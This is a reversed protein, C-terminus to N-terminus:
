RRFQRRKQFALRRNAAESEFAVTSLSWDIGKKLVEDNALSQPYQFVIAAQRDSQQRFYVDFRFEGAKFYVADIRDGAHARRRREHPGQDNKHVVGGGAVPLECNESGQLLVRATRAHREGPIDGGAM